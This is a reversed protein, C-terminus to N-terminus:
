HHCGCGGGAGGKGPCACPKKAPATAQGLFRAPSYREGMPGAAHGRFSATQYRRDHDYDRDGFKHPLSRRSPGSMSAIAGVARQVGQQVVSHVLEKGVGSFMNGLSSLWSAHGPHREKRGGGPSSMTAVNVADAFPGFQRVDAATAMEPPVLDPNTMQAAQFAPLALSIAKNLFSDGAAGVAPRIQQSRGYASRVTMAPDSGMTSVTPLVMIGHDGIFGPDTVLEDILAQAEATRVNNYMNNPHAYLLAMATKWEKAVIRTSAQERRTPAALSHTPKMEFTFRGEISITQGAGAGTIPIVICPGSMNAVNHGDVVEVWMQDITVTRLLDYFFPQPLDRRDPMYPAMPNGPEFLLGLPSSIPLQVKWTAVAGGSGGNGSGFPAADNTSVGSLQFYKVLPTVQNLIETDVTHMYGVGGNGNQPNECGSGNTPAFTFNRVHAAVQVATQTALQAQYSWVLQNSAQVLGSNPAPDYGPVDAGAYAPNPIGGMRYTGSWKPRHDAPFLNAGGGNAILTGVTGQSMMGWWLYDGFQTHPATGPYTLSVLDATAVAPNGDIGTSDIQGLPAPWNVQGGITATPPLAPNSGTISEQRSMCINRRNVYFATGGIIPGNNLFVNAQGRTPAGATVPNFEPPAYLQLTETDASFGGSNDSGPALLNGGSPVIGAQTLGYGYFRGHLGMPHRGFGPGEQYTGLAVPNVDDPSWSVLEPQFPVLVSPVPASQLSSFFYGTTLPENTAGTNWNGPYGPDYNSFADVMAVPCNQDDFGMTTGPVVTPNINVPNTHYGAFLYSRLLAQFLVYEAVVPGLGLSVTDTYAWGTQSVKNLGGVEFAVGGVSYVGVAANNLEATYNPNVDAVTRGTISSFHAYKSKTVKTTSCCLFGGSLGTAADYQVSKSGYAATGFRSLGYFLPGVCTRANPAPAAVYVYTGIWAVNEEDADFIPHKMLVSVRHRKVPIAGTSVVQYDDVVFPAVAGEASSFEGALASVAADGIQVCVAFGAGTQTPPESPAPDFGSHVDTSSVQNHIIFSDTNQDIEAYFYVAHVTAAVPDVEGRPIGLLGTRHMETVSNLFDHPRTSYPVSVVVRVDPRSSLDVNLDKQPQMFQIGNGLQLEAFPSIWTGGAPLDPATINAPGSVPARAPRPNVDAIEVLTRSVGMDSGDATAALLTDPGMAGVTVVLGSQLPQAMICNGEASKNGALVGQNAFDVGATLGDVVAGGCSGLSMNQAISVGPSKVEIRGTILRGIEGFETPDPSVNPKPGLGKSGGANAARFPATFARQSAPRLVASESIGPVSTVVPDYSVGWFSVVAGVANSPAICVFFNRTLPKDASCEVTTYSRSEFTITNGAWQQADPVDVVIGGPMPYGTMLQSCFDRVATIENGVPMATLVKFMDTLGRLRGLAHDIDM